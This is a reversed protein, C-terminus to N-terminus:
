ETNDSDSGSKEAEKYSALDKKERKTLFQMFEDCNYAAKLKCGLADSMRKFNEALVVMKNTPNDQTRNRRLTENVLATMAVELPDSHHSTKSKKASMGKNRDHTKLSATNSSDELSVEDEELCNNKFIDDSTATPRIGARSIFKEEM